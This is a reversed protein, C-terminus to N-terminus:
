LMFRFGIHWELKRADGNYPSRDNLFSAEVGTYLGWTSLLHASIFYQHPMKHDPNDEGYSLPVANIFHMTYDAQLELLFFDSILYDAMFSPGAGIYWGHPTPTFESKRGLSDEVIFTSGVSLDTINFGLALAWRNRIITNWSFTHAGILYNSFTSSEDRYIEDFQEGFAYFIEGIIKNRMIYRSGGPKLNTNYLLFDGTWINMQHKDAPVANPFELNANRLSIGLYLEDAFYNEGLYKFNGLQAEASHCLILGIVLRWMM